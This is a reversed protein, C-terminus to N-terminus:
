SRHRLCTDSYRGGLPFHLKFSVPAVWFVEIREIHFLM